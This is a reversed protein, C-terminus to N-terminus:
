QYDASSRCAQGSGDVPGGFSEIDDDSLIDSQSPLGASRRPDLVVEAEWASDGAALQGPRRHQLRDLEPCPENRRPRHGTQRAVRVPKLDSEIVVVVDGGPGDHDGTAHLVASQLDLHRQTRSDRRRSRRSQVRLALM